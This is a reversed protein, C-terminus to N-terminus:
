KKTERAKGKFSISLTEKGERKGGEKRDEKEKGWGGKRERLILHCLTKPPHKLCKRLISTQPNHQM